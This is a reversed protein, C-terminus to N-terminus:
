EHLFRFDTMLYTLVNIWAGVMFTPDSGDLDSLRWQHNPCSELPWQNVHTVGSEKRTRYSEVLLAYTAEVEPDDTTLTEGLLLQHLDQIQRKLAPEGSVKDVISLEVRVPEDGYQEGAGILELTYNGAEAAEFPIIISGNCSLQHYTDTHHGCGTIRTGQPAEEFEIVAEMGSPSTIVIRDFRANRSGNEDGLQNNFTVFISVPGPEIQATTEIVTSFEALPVEAAVQAVLTSEPTTLRRTNGLMRREAPAEAFDRVVVECATELAMKEAINFMLPSMQDARRTVNRSDIGGYLVQLEGSLRSQRGTIHREAYRNNYHGWYFGTLGAFKAELEEPTLLRRSGLQNSLSNAEELNILRFWPSTILEVILDRGNFPQGGNLGEAFRAATETIYSQQAESLALQEQFREDEVVEPAEIVPQGMLSPWWFRVVSEAFWPDKVIEAALWQLSEAEKPTTSALFGPERMDKYWTDGETYRIGDLANIDTDISVMVQVPEEGFQDGRLKISLTYTGAEGLEIPFVVGGQCYQGYGDRQLGGCGYRETDEPINNPGINISQNPGTLTLPGFFANRDGNGDAADNMFEIRLYVKQAPSEFSTDFVPGYDENEVEFLEGGIYTPSLTPDAIAQKYNFPLSDLGGRSEHYFGIDGYHQFAGAVPDLVQHCVTCASNKLTPNDTDALAIPDTTRPASKEIDVGLFHYFTWRARARNRNTETSPYRNLFAQTNLVGAHPYDIFADYATIRRTQFETEETKLSATLLTQGNNRAPKFQSHDYCPKTPFAQCYSFEEPNVEDFEAGGNLFESVAYNMMTYDATLIERYDRDTGVIYAILELPARALGWRWHNYKPWYFFRRGAEAQADAHANTGIPYFANGELSAQQLPRGQVFADTLLRDNAGRILFQHFAPDETALRIAERLALESGDGLLSIESRTPNRGLLLITARRLTAEANLLTSSKFFANFSNSVPEPEEEGSADEEQVLRVFEEFAAYQDTGMRYIAGGGHSQSGSMKALLTAANGGSVYAALVSYNNDLYGPVSSAEYVLRTSRASGNDNHCVICRALILESVNDEFYTKATITPTEIPPEVNGGGGSRLGLYVSIDAASTREGDPAVANQVLSSGNFGFLYRIILLGDTLASNTGNGDVDLEASYADLYAKIDEPTSRTASADVADQVLAQDTFGFLYRIVLLGDTLATEKGDGDIDWTFEDTESAIAPPVLGVLAILAILGLRNMQVM